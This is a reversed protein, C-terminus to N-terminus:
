TLSQLLPKANSNINLNRMPTILSLRMKTKTLRLKGKLKITQSIIKNIWLRNNLTITLFLTQIVWMILFLMLWIRAISYHDQKFVYIKEEWKLMIIVKCWSQHFNAMRSKLILSVMLTKLCKDTKFTQEIQHHRRYLFKKM